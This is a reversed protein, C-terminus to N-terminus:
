VTYKHLVLYANIQTLSRQVMNIKTIYAHFSWGGVGISGLNREKRFRELPMEASTADGSGGLDSGLLWTASDGYRFVAFGDSDLESGCVSRRRALVSM